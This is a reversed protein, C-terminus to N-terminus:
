EFAYRMITGLTLFVGRNQATELVNEANTVGIKCLFPYLNAKFIVGIKQMELVSKCFCGKKLM